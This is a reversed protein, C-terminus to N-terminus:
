DKPGRHERESVFLNVVTTRLARYEQDTLDGRARMDQLEQLTWPLGAQGTDSRYRRRVWFAVIALALAAVLAVMAWAALEALRGPDV